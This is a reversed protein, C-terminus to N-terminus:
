SLAMKLRIGKYYYYEEMAWRGGDKGVGSEKIGGHPMHVGDCGGNVSVTGFRLARSYRCIEDANHSWLYATLGYETDNALAIAEEETRYTMIAAIPGFIEERFIRMDQTVGTIFTPLYYYGKDKEPPRCGGLLVKGGKAVADDVLAQMRDVVARTIMPGMNCNEEDGTGCRVDQGRELVKALFAEYVDEHVIVRQVGTCNQSAVYRQSNVCRDAAEDLCANPTVIFPANGGLELSFRKISTASDRIVKRGAASSGILCLMAPITSETLTSSIEGASGAVFNIVGSPFGIREMLEGVYLTSLPTKTAPKLVATCGSALIPGIKASLNHLPFNWALYGVVVGLPERVVLNFCSGSTDRITEDYYGKATELCFTFCNILNHIEDMADVRLKGTEKMLLHLLTEQESIIEKQLKLIWEGREELPMKSWVPFASQAAELAAQAQARSATPLKCIETEDGPCIVTVEHGEGQVLSGNIYQMFQHTNTTM